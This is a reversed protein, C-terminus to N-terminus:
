VPSSVICSVSGSQIFFKDATETGLSAGARSGEDFNESTWRLAYNGEHILFTKSMLSVWSFVTTDPSAMWFHIPDIVYEVAAANSMLISPM